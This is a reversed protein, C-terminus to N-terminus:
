LYFDFSNYKSTFVGGIEKWVDEKLVRVSFQDIKSYKQM